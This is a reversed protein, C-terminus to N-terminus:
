SPLAPELKAGAATNCWSHEVQGNDLTTRGGASWPVIHGAHYDKWEVVNGCRPCVKGQSRGWIIRRQEPSFQSHPDLTGVVQDYIDGLIRARAQRRAQSNMQGTFFGRGYEQEDESFESLPSVSEPRLVSNRYETVRTFFGELVKALETAAGLSKQAGTLPQRERLAGILGYLDHEVHHLFAAFTTPRGFLEWVEGLIKLLKDRGDDLKRVLTGTSSRYTAYFENLTDRREQPGDLVLALLESCLQLDMMRDYQSKTIAGCAVFFSQEDATLEGLDDCLSIVKKLFYSDAFFANRIEQPTLVYNSGNMRTFARVAAARDGRVVFIPIEYQDFKIKTAASLKSFPAGHYEAVTADTPAFEDDDVASAEIMTTEVSFEDAVYALLTSLRQKGDIVEYTTFGQSDDAYLTIAGIPVGRALSDILLMKTKLKWVARRQYEPDLRLTDSQKANRVQQFTWTKIEIAM